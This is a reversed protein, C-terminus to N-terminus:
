VGLVEPSMRTRRLPRPPTSPCLFPSPRSNPSAPLPLRPPPPQGPSRVSAGRVRSVECWRRGGERGGRLVGDHWRHRGVVRASGDGRAAHQAKRVRCRDVRPQPVVGLAHQAAHVEALATLPTPPHIPPHLPPQAASAQRGSSAGASEAGGARQWGSGGERRKDRQAPRPPGPDISKRSCTLVVTFYKLSWNRPSRIESLM